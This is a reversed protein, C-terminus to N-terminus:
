WFGFGSCSLLLGICLHMFTVFEWLLTRKLEWDCVDLANIGYFALFHMGLYESDGHIYRIVMGFVYHAKCVTM